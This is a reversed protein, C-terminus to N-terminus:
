KVGAPKGALGCYGTPEYQYVSGKWDCYDCGYDACGNGACDPCTVRLTGSQRRGSVRWAMCSPGGCRAQEERGGVQVCWLQAAEKETVTM